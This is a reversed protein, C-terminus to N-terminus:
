PNEPAAAKPSAARNVCVRQVAEVFQFPAASPTDPRHCALCTAEQVEELGLLRALVPDRMVHEPAYKRGAGHCAECQVGALAPDDRQPALTHCSRCAPDSAQGSSLSSLARAHPGASWARYAVEHCTGCADAGLHESPPAGGASAALSLMAPGWILPLVRWRVAGSALLSRARHPGM